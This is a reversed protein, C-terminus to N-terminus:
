LTICMLCFLFAVSVNIAFLFIFFVQISNARIQFADFIKQPKPCKCMFIIENNNNNCDNDDNIIVNLSLPDEQSTKPNKNEGKQTYTIM